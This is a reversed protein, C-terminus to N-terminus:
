RENEASESRKYLCSTCGSCNGSCVDIRKCESCASSKGQKKKVISGIAVAAVLTVAGITIIIDIAGM